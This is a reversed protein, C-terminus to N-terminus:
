GQGSSDTFSGLRKRFIWKLIIRGDGGLADFHNREKLNGLWFWEQGECKSCAGAM